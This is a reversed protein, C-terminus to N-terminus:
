HGMSGGRAGIAAANVMNKPILGNDIMYDLEEEAAARGGKGLRIASFYGEWDGADWDAFDDKTPTKPEDEVKVPNKVAPTDGGDDDAVSNKKLAQEKEWDDLEKQYNFDTERWYQTQDYTRNDAWQGYEKTWESDAVGKLYESEGLLRNYEDGWMGYETNRDDYLMGYKDSLEQGEMQYKALAMQYLEPAIDNLNELQANYAQQGVSQAYSSGYGGNMAAAQGMTDMMAMQGQKIYQDKYKQYLADGNLDYTFKERNMIQDYLADLQDQKGYKFDGYGEVKGWADKAKTDAATVNESPKYGGDYKSLDVQTYPNKSTNSSATSYLSKLTEAGVIGDVILGNLRQYDMVAQKTKPGYLGDVALNYGKSNLTQQLTMIEEKNRLGSSTNGM